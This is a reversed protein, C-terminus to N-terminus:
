KKKTEVHNKGYSPRLLKCTYPPRPKLEDVNVECVKVDEIAIDFEQDNNSTEVYAVTERKYKHTRAKEARLREVQEVRDSLQAMDRLDQNDLKKMISYDLDGAVMKVLKHEPIQTFCRAKLLRFRNLYDDIYEITKRKVSALEKLSIKYQGMYFQEHFLRDLQAWHQISHPAFTTFLTFANKTLSYPFFMLRLNKNNSIDGAETLYRAIHELTSGSTDGDFKTFKPVKWGRLLKTHLVYESLLYLFNPRHLGINLDNQAM